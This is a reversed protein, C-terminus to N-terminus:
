LPNNLIGTFIIAGTQKETIIYMFPHNFTITQPPAAVTTGIGIGTAAAAETGEEDVKIYTKHVAKTIYVNATSYMKSFDAAGTFAIHMGLASLEPQMDDISYSYEWKPMSLSINYLGMGAIIAKLGTEDINGAFSNVPQQNNKSQLLYMSYSNGGGYPMEVVNYNDDFYINTTLQQNMFPVKIKAGGALYFDDDRTDQAKFAHQWGGKFYIANVLFMLMGDPIDNIIKPIKNKTNDSVWNNIVDATSMPQVYANFYSANVSLFSQLPQVTNQKYWISNAILMTVKSDEAPLQEILAKCAANVDNISLGSLQLANAMSDKTANDAGNYVMSLALYISLPSVLKNSPGSNNQLASQLFKLAFRNNAEVVNQGNAPLTITHTVDPMDGSKKCSISCCVLASIVLYFLIRM